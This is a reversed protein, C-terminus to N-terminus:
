PRRAMFHWRGYEWDFAGALVQRTRVRWRQYSLNWHRRRGGSANWSRTEKLTLDIFAAGQVSVENREDLILLNFSSFGSGFCGNENFSRRAGYTRNFNVVTILIAMGGEIRVQAIRAALGDPAVPGIDKLLFVALPVNRQM